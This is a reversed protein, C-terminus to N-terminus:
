HRGNKREMIEQNVIAEMLSASKKARRRMHMKKEARRNERSEAAKDQWLREAVDFVSSHHEDIQPWARDLQQLVEQMVRERPWGPEVVTPDIDFDYATGDFLVKVTYPM